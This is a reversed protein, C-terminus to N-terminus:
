GRWGADSVSRVMKGLGVRCDTGALDGAQGEDVVADAGGSRMSGIQPVAAAAAMHSLSGGGRLLVRPPGWEEVQGDALVLLADLDMVTDLRHAIVLAVGGGGSGGGAGSGGTTSIDPGGGGGGQLFDRLAAQVAEDTEADVNATAEDLALVKARQLMARALCLLQRQGASLNAGGAAVQADLGGPLASVAGALRVCRLVAWLAADDRSHAGWPDLNSRLSGGFLVPDQPIVALHRRLADLGVAAIDVGDLRICGHTLDVMRFLTLLLSSKGSGTRGVVGCSSGASVSFTVGRLVPPLGPQYAASVDEFQLHGSRPWGQPPQGGGEAVRLPESDLQTYALLREVSTMHNEVEATQQVFFQMLATVNLAHTLALALVEISLKDRVGVSMVAASLLTTASLTDTRLGLWCWGANSAYSWEASRSLLRLLEQQFRESAGYARITPLGKCTAAVFTYIPSYTVAEWRRFERSGSIYRKRVWMFALVLPIFLPMVFPVAIGVLVVAGFVLTGSDLVEGFSGPLLDDVLGQDKSFRNVIRGAPNSHFFSLPARLVRTLIKNHLGTSASVAAEFFLVFRSVSLIFVAATLIGYVWQWRPEAQQEPEEAAWLALWWDAALYAAEGALLGLVVVCALVLGLCRVYRGYVAWSVSGMEKDEAALLSVGTPARELFKGGAGGGGTGPDSTRRGGGAGGLMTLRNGSAIWQSIMKAKGGIALGGASLRGGNISSVSRGFDRPSQALPGSAASIRLAGRTGAPTGPASVPLSSSDAGGLQHRLSLHRLLWSGRGPRKATNSRGGAGAGIHAYIPTSTGSGAASNPEVGGPSADCTGARSAAFHFAIAGDSAVARLRSGAQRNQCPREQQSQLQQQQRSDAFREEHGHAREPICSVDVSLQTALALRGAPTPVAGASSCGAAGAAARPSEVDADADAAAGGGQEGSTAEAVPGPRPSACQQLSRGVPQPLVACADVAAAFATAPPLFVTPSDTGDASSDCGLVVAAAFCPSKAAASPPAAAATDPVGAPAAERRLQEVEAWPGLAAQRGSRLLLVRDCLPLFQEQHTVLLRTTGCRSAMLGAPGLVGDFLERGVRADVASLPDDLLAVHPRCYCARALAVRAKQGGSLGAGGEGLETLDGAAMRALDEHLCCARVVTDYWGEEYPLGFTINERVSSGAMIWPVQACYAVSGCVEVGGGCTDGRQQQLPQLQEQEGLPQLPQLQGLLAALLTSKGSGTAGCVGLLEGPACAFCVGSLTAAMDGCLEQSAAHTKCTGTGARQTCTVVIDAPPLQVLGSLPGGRHEGGGPVAGALPGSPARAKAPGAEENRAAAVEARRRGLCAAIVAAAAARRPFCAGEDPDGSAGSDAVEAGEAAALRKLADEASGSRGLPWRWGFHGGHMAVFGRRLDGAAAGEAGATVSTERPQTAAASSALRHGGGVDAKAPIRQGDKCAAPAPPLEPLSLFAQIRTLSVGLESVFQSALAFKDVLYASPLQLLSLVYFVSAVNLSGSRARYVSFTVFAIISSGSSFLAINFARIRSSRRVYREEEHRLAKIRSQYVDELGCMKVALHGEVAESM